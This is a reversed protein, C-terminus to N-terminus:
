TTEDNIKFTLNFDMKKGTHRSTVRIKFRKESGVGTFLPEDMFQLNGLSTGGDFMLQNFNPSIKLLRKAAKHYEHYIPRQIRFEKVVARTEDSDELIEVEFIPTPNSPTNHYSLSRFIYYYKRNPILEDVFFANLNEQNILKNQSVHNRYVDARQDVTTLFNAAFDTIATPPEDMRFIEFAGIAYKNTFLTGYIPDKSLNLNEVIQTDSDVIQTFQPPSPNLLIEEGYFPNMTSGEPGEMQVSGYIENLNSQLQIGLSNRKGKENFFLVEPAPPPEDFFMTEFVDTEMELVQLSPKINVEIQARYKDESFAYADVVGSGDVYEMQNSENTVAINSYTYNSGLIVVLRKVHYIYKSGFKLQSDVFDNLYNTYFTQTPLTVDNNLFKEIKWGLHFKVSNAPAGGAPLGAANITEEYDRLHQAIFDNLRQLMRIKRIQNIFRNSISNSLLDDEELLFMEDDAPQFTSPSYNLIISILDHTKVQSLLGGVYFDNNIFAVNRKISQLIFKRQKFIDSPGALNVSTLAPGFMVQKAQGVGANQMVDTHKRIRLYFPFTKGASPDNLNIFEQIQGLSLHADDEIKFINRQTRALSIVSGTYNEIRPEFEEVLRRFDSKTQPIKDEPVPDLNTLIGSSNKILTSAVSNNKYNMLNLNLLLNTDYQKTHDEYEPHHFVKHIEQELDTQKFDFVHDVHSEGNKVTDEIFEKWQIHDRFQPEKGVITITQNIEPFLILRDITKPTIVTKNPDLKNSRFQTTTQIIGGQDIYNKGLEARLKDNPVDTIVNIADVIKM